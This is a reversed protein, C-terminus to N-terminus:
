LTLNRYNFQSEVPKAMEVTAKTPAINLVAGEMVKKVEERVMDPMKKMEETHMNVTQVIDKVDEEIASVDIAPTIEKNKIAKEVDKFRSLVPKLDITDVPLKAILKRVEGVASLLEDWRMEYKPFEIKPIEVPEPKSLQALEQRIINRVTFSDLGSGGGRMSGLVREQVLYTNEEDGYNESKTTYGSDSYVSTVISIYFGQGSTDAPVEWNKSFRQSGRDTLNLTDIVADTYANRIVARVYYTSADTHNAIQRVITFSAQPQLTM